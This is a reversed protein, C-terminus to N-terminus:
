NNEEALRKMARVYAEAQMEIAAARKKAKHKRLKAEERAKKAKDAEMAAKIAKAEKENREKIKYARNVLKNYINSGDEGLLKKTICISIGQELSFKDDPELVAKTKTGDMFKMIVTNNIVVVDSIDSMILRDKTKFGDKYHTAYLNNYVTKFQTKVDIPVEPEKALKDVKREVRDLDAKDAKASLSDYTIYDTSITAADVWSLSAATSTVDATLKEWGKTM